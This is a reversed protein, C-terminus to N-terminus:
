GYKRESKRIANAEAVKKEADKILKVVEKQALKTTQDASSTAHLLEAQTLTLRVSADITLHGAETSDKLNPVPTGKNRLSKEMVQHLRNLVTLSGRAKPYHQFVEAATFFLQLAQVKYQPHPVTLTLWGAQVEKVSAGYKAQAVEIAKKFNENNEEHFYLTAVPTSETLVPEKGLGRLDNPHVADSKRQKISRLAM